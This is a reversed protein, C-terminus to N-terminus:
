AAAGQPEALREGLWGATSRFVDPPVAAHRGPSETLRKRASALGDFLRRVQARPFLEDDLQCLFEVPCRVGGSDRHLRPQIPAMLGLVAAEIRPEAAVLPVGFATGMSLGWYGLRDAGVEELQQIAGLTARWDEIMEDFIGERALFAYFEELKMRRRDLEATVREGHGPADIAAAALGHHRVLLRGVARVYPAGKHSTGGHGLLVLPRPGRADAPSWLIGPVRRGAVRLLFPREAVGREASAGALFEM